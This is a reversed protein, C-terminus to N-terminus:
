TMRQRSLEDRIAETTEHLKTYWDSNAVLTNGEFRYRGQEFLAADLANLVSVLRNGSIALTITRDAGNDPAALEAATM